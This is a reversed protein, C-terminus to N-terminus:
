YNLVEWVLEEKTMEGKGEWLFLKVAEVGKTLNCTTASNSETYCAIDCPNEAVIQWFYVVAQCWHRLNQPQRCMGCLRCPM